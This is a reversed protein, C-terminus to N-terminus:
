ETESEAAADDSKPAEEAQPAETPAKDERKKDSSDFRKAAEEKAKVLPSAETVPGKM